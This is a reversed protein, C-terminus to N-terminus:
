KSCMSPRSLYACKGPTEEISTSQKPKDDMDCSDLDMPGPLAERSRSLNNLEEILSQRGELGKQLGTELGAIEQRLSVLRERTKEVEADLLPLGSEIESKRAQRQDELTRQREQKQLREQRAKQARRQEQEQLDRDVEQQRFKKTEEERAQQSQSEELRRQEEGQFRKQEEDKFQQERERVSSHEEAQPTQLNEERTLSQDAASVRSLEAALSREAEAKALEVEELQQEANLQEAAASDNGRALAIFSEQIGVRAVDSNRSNLVSLPVNPAGNIQHSTEGPSPSITVRSSTGPSHTRSTTQKAKIAIRQELEAIKRNIVEIEMEKSKLGKLDGTQGSAQAALPTMVVPKKRPPFDTLPPLNKVSKEKGNGSAIVQSKRSLSDRHSATDMDSSEDGSTQNSVEDDSIDIIVSTDEQQGLPRKVRTSPSDIFDSAKQRKRSASTTKAITAPLDSNRDFSNEPIRSTTSIKPSQASVAAHPRLDQQSSDFTAYTVRQPSVALAENAVPQSPNVPEPADSTMFLGPISFPPKQSAPSFYSSQRSPLPRPTPISSEAPINPIGKAPPQQSHRMADSSTASRAQQQISERLKLAEIKQRALDTQAKRKAEVDSDEKQTEPATDVSENPAQQMTAHIIATAADSSRVQASAGPDTITSTKPSVPTTASSAPKSAKAALMRAIYEKRDLIKTEGAKVGSAKGLPNLTSSKSSKALSAQSQVSKGESKAAAVNPKSNIKGEETVLHPSTDNGVVEGNSNRQPSTSHQHHISVTAASPASETPVDSAVVEPEVVKQQQLSLSATVPVGIITYLKRLVGPKLGASVIQNFDFGQSHLDRLAQKAEEMKQDSSQLSAEEIKQAPNNTLLQHQTSKNEATRSVLPSDSNDIFGNRISHPQPQTAISGQSYSTALSDPGFSILVSSLCTLLTSCCPIGQILGPLPQKPANTVRHGSERDAFDENEHWKHQSLGSSTTTSVASHSAPKEVEGDDLEGDELESLAPPVTDSLGINTSQVEAAVNLNSFATSSNSPLNSNTSPQSFPRAEYSPQGHAFPTPPFAPSQFASYQIQAGYLAYPAGNVENGSSPIKVGQANSRFSHTNANTRPVIPMTNTQGQGYLSSANQYPYPYQPLSHDYSGVLPEM